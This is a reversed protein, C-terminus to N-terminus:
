GICRGRRLESPRDPTGGQTSPGRDAATVLPAVEVDSGVRVFRGDRIAVASAVPRARDLTSIAGGRLILDVHESM